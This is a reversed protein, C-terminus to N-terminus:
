HGGCSCNECNDGCGGVNQFSIGTIETLDDITPYEGILVIEGDVLTLPLTDEKQLMQMVQPYRTFAEPQNMLNYRKMTLEDGNQFAALIQTLEMMEMNFDPIKAEFLEILM